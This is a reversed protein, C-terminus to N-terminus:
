AGKPLYKRRADLLLNRLQTLDGNFVAQNDTGSLYAALALKYFLSFQDDMSKFDAVQADSFQPPTAYSGRIVYERVAVWEQNVTFLAVKAPDKVQGSVAACGAVLAVLLFLVIANRKNCSM